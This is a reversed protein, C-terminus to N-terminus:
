ELECHRILPLQPSGLCGLRHCIDGVITDLTGL